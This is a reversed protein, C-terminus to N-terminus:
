PEGNLLFPVAVEPWIVLDPRPESAERTLAIQRDFFVPMMQPNSWLQYPLPIMQHWVLQM